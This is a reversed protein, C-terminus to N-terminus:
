AAKAPRKRANKARTAAAKRGIASRAKASLGAWYAKAARKAIQSREKKSM